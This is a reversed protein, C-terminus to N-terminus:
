PISDRITITTELGYDQSQIIGQRPFFILYMVTNNVIKLMTVCM